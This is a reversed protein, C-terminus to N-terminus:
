SLRLPLPSHKRCRGRQRKLLHRQEPIPDLGVPELSFAHHVRIEPNVHSRHARIEHHDVLVAVYDLLDVGLRVRAGDLHHVLSQLVDGVLDSAPDRNAAHAGGPGAPFQDSLQGARIRDLVLDGRVLGARHVDAVAQNVLLHVGDELDAALVGFEDANLVAHDHIERHVVCARGTRTREQLLLGLLELDVDDAFKRLARKSGFMGEFQALAAGHKHLLVHGRILLPAGGLLGEHRAQSEGDHMVVEVAHHPLAPDPVYDIKLAAGCVVIGHGRGKGHHQVFLDDHRRVVAHDAGDSGRQQGFLLDRHRVRLGPEM